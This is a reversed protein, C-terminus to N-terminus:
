SSSGPDAEDHPVVLVEVFSIRAWFLVNVFPLVSLALLWLGYWAYGVSAIVFAIVVLSGTLFLSLFIMLKRM